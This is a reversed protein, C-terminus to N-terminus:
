KKPRLKRLRILDWTDATFRLVRYLRSTKIHELERRHSDEVVEQRISWNVTISSALEGHGAPSVQVVKMGQSVAVVGVVREIAHAITGGVGIPEPPFDSYALGLGFLPALASPRYWFMTGVSHILNRKEYSDVLNMRRVLDQVLGLEGDVGELPIRQQALFERLPAFVTPIVLGVDPLDAFLAFVRKLSQESLLSDFLHARWSEGWTFHVSKKSHLHCVVDYQGHIAGAEVLWPAVDRGRNPVKRYDFKKLNAVGSDNICRQDYNSGGKPSTVLLDFDFPINRLLLILEHVLEQNFSHYHVLISGPSVFRTPFEPTSDASEFGTKFLPDDFRGFEFVKSSLPRSEGMFMSDRFRIHKFLEEENTGRNTMSAIIPRILSYPESISIINLHGRHASGIQRICDIAGEHALELDRIMESSFMETTDFVPIFRGDVKTVSVCSSQVPSFLEELIIYFGPVSSRIDGFDQFLSHTSTGFENDALKNKQDEHLYLKDVAVGTLQRLTHSVSGGYGVDFVIPKKSSSKAVMSKVYDQYDLYAGRAAEVLDSCDALVKAITTRNGMCPLALTVEPVRARMKSNIDQYTFVADILNGLTMAPDYRLEGLYKDLNKQALIGLRRGSYLYYGPIEPTGLNLENYAKLPLYGDRSAFLIAGYQGSVGASCSLYNSIQYLILGLAVYGFDYISSFVSRGKSPTRSNLLGGIATGIVIRSEPPLKRVNPWVRSFHGSEGFATEFWSPVYCGTVGARVAELYDSHYNDGIHVMSQPLIEQEDCVHHFLEGDDKRKGAESSVYVERIQDFGRAHLLELLDASTWYMDSTAVVRKGSAIAFDYLERISARPALIQREISLELRMIYDATALSIGTRHSIYNYIQGLTANKTGLISCVEAEAALRTSLLDISHTQAVKKSLIFFVDEPLLCSRYLLTDFIDFSVLLTKKSSILKKITENSTATMM